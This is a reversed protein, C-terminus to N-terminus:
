QSLKRRKHVPLSARGALERDHTSRVYYVARCYVTRPKGNDNWVAAYRGGSVPRPIQDPTTLWRWDVISDDADRYIVATRTQGAGFTNIEVSAVCDVPGIWLVAAALIEIM